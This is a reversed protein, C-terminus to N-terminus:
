KEWLIGSGAITMPNNGDMFNKAAQFTGDGNGLLISIGGPNKQHPDGANVVALDAKHDGNFDGVAVATPNTNVPYSVAARFSVSASGAAACLLMSFLFMRHAIWKIFV